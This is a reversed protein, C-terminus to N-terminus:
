ADLNIYYDGLNPVGGLKGVKYANLINSSDRIVSSDFDAISYLHTASNQSKDTIWIADNRFIDKNNLVERNHTTAILQSEKSNMLFSLLFHNFLDPHLSSELEDISVVISKRIMLSLIGAFGYYRQTGQSELEIPLLYKANDVTHEFSLKFSTYRSEKMNDLMEDSIDKDVIKVFEFFKDSMKADAKRLELGSINFDAKKLINVIDKKDIESEDIQNNVFGDLDTKTYILDMLNNAFWSVINSLVDSEVNTKLFGGFVTNNWLTNSKIARELGKDKKSSFNIESLQKVVDTNRIFISDKKTKSKYQFLEEKVIAKHNLEVEYFYRVENKFFSISFITNQHPTNADFYSRKLIM